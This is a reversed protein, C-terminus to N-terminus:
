RENWETEIQDLWDRVEDVQSLAETVDVVQQKAREDQDSPRDASRTSPTHGPRAEWAASIYASHPPSLYWVM